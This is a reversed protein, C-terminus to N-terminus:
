FITGHINIKEYIKTVPIKTIKDGTKKDLILVKGCAWQPRNYDLAIDYPPEGYLQPSDFFFWIFFKIYACYVKLRDIIISTQDTTYCHCIASGSGFFALHVLECDVLDGSSKMKETVTRIYKIANNSSDRKIFSDKIIEQATKYIMRFSGIIQGQCINILVVQVILFIFRRKDRASFKSINILSLRDLVLNQVLIDYLIDINQYKALYYFGEKNLYPSEEHRKEKFKEELFTKPIQQHIYGKLFETEKRFEDFSKFPYENLSKGKYQVNLIKKPDYGIFELLSFPTLIQHINKGRERVLRNVNDQFSKYTKKSMKEIINQDFFVYAM